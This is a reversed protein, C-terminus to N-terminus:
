IKPAPYFTAGTTTKGIEVWTVRKGSPYAYVSVINDDGRAVYIQNKEANFTFRDAKDV